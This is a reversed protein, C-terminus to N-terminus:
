ITSQMAEHARAYSRDAEEHRGELSLLDGQFRLSSFLTVADDRSTPAIAVGREISALAGARDGTANRALAQYYFVETDGPGIAIARVFSEESESTRNLMALSLGRNKWADGFDPDIVIARDFASVAEGYRGMAHHTEGRSNWEDASESLSICGCGILLVGVLLVAPRM